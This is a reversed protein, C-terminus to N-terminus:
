QAPPAAPSRALAAKTVEAPIGADRWATLDRATMESTLTRQDVYDVLLDATFGQRQLEKLDALLDAPSIGKARDGDRPAGSLRGGGAPAADRGGPEDRPALRPGATWASQLGPDSLGKAYTEKLADSLVESYNEENESKGYRRATGAAVGEYVLHGGDSLRFLANVESAYTSGVAKVNEDVWFKTVRVTLVRGPGRGQAGATGQVVPLGWQGATQVLAGLAFVVVDSAARVNARIGERDVSGIVDRARLARGDEVAVAIPTGKMAPSITAIPANLNEQPVFTLRVVPGDVARAGAAGALSVLLSLLVAEFRLKSTSSM